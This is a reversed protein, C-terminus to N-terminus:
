VELTMYTNVWKHGAMEYPEGVEGGMLRTLKLGKEAEGDLLIPSFLWGNRAIIAKIVPKFEKYFSVPPHKTGWSLFFCHRYVGFIVKDNWVFCLGAHRILWELVNPVPAGYCVELEHRSGSILKMWKDSPKALRIM